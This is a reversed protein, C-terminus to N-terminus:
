YVIAKNKFKSVLESGLEGAMDEYDYKANDNFETDVTMLLEGSEVSFLKSEIRTLTTHITKTDNSLIGDNVANNNTVTSSGSSSSGITIVLLLDAGQSRLLSQAATISSTNDIVLDKAKDSAAVAEMKKKAFNTAVSRELASRSAMTPATTYVVIKSYKNPTLGDKEWTGLTRTGSCSSLLGISFICIVVLLTKYM